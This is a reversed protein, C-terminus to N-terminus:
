PQHAPDDLASLIKNIRLHHHLIMIADVINHNLRYRPTKFHRLFKQMTIEKSVSGKWESATRLHIYGPLIRYQGVIFMVMGALNITHGAAAATHGRPNNFFQPWEAVVENFEGVELLKEVTDQCKGIYNLGEPRILGWTWKGPGETLHEREWRAWGFENVSPDIALIKIM